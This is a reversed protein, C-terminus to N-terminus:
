YDSICVLQADRRLTDCTVHNRTYTVRYISSTPAIHVLHMPNCLARSLLSGHTIVFDGRMKRSRRKKTTRKKVVRGGEERKRGRMRQQQQEDGRGKGQGEEGIEGV